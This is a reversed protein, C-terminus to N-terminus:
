NNIQLIPLVVINSVYADQAITLQAIPDTTLDPNLHLLVKYLGVQGPVLTASIVDATKGAAIANMASAPATVPGDTPWAIGTQLLDKNSDNLVPLGVGTAYVVIMEGPVAPNNQTIASGEVNACCLTNGIATMIVSASASASAGYPIGNGEPGQVRARILIRDFVGSAEATVKPDQNILSILADRISDLSDGAAVKYTYTRDEITVTATDNAVASGDVSV